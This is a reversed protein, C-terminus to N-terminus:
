DEDEDESSVLLDVFDSCEPCDNIPKYRSHLQHKCYWPSNAGRSRLQNFKTEWKQNDAKNQEMSKEKDRKRKRKLEEIEKKNVSNIRIIMGLPWKANMPKKSLFQAVQTKLKLMNYAVAIEWFKVAKDVKLDLKVDDMSNVLGPINYKSGLYLGAELDSSNFADTTLLVDKILKTRVVDAQYKEAYFYLCKVDQRTVSCIFRLNSSNVLLILEM